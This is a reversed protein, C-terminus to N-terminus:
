TYRNPFLTVRDPIHLLILRQYNSPLEGRHPKVSAAGGGHFDDCDAADGRM